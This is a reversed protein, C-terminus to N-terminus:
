EPEHQHSFGESLLNGTVGHFTLTLRNKIPVAIQMQRIFPPLEHVFTGHLTLLCLSTDDPLHEGQGPRTRLVENTLFEIRAVAAGNYHTTAYALVDLATFTPEGPEVDIRSPVIAPVGSAPVPRQEPTFEGSGTMPARRRNRDIESM